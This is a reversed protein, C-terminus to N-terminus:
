SVAYYIFTGRIFASNNMNNSGSGFNLNDGGRKLVGTTTNEDVFGSIWNNTSNYECLGWAIGGMASKQNAATFPLNTIQATGSTADARLSFGAYVMRGIKIYEASITTWSGGPSWSGEEYEDLANAAATDTGFCLGDPTFKAIDSLSGTNAGIKFVIRQGSSGGTAACIETQGTNKILTDQSGTKLLHIALDNSDEIKLKQDPNNNGIGVNGDGSIRLRETDSGGTPKTFFVMPDNEKQSYFSAQGNAAIRITEGSVTDQLKLEAGALGALLLTGQNNATQYIELGWTGAVGSDGGIKLETGDFTLNAEATVTGDGDDTIVRNAGTTGVATIAAPPITEFTPDAGNNARLFKGDNSGDGHPLKALTVAQDAIKTTTVAGSAIKAESVTGDGPTPVTIASGIQIIFVSAGTPLNAGFVITNADVLAFGESPASTGTNAKQIVGNVSVILQAASTVAAAAGSNSSERLDYTAVSGNITPAGSGGAPCLFLFKFDGTSTVEKFANATSDFVKMKDANKDYILDGEDNNSTPEGNTVRYRNGFDNIDNSLNLIDSEKLTAKHFNYIQGSGTSSVMFSVGADVTTSNFASNINNITVTSGGVTRGTTSVGSGNVVLGGADAISIVVGAAPQTNPFAADTAIVELGGIPALQAAVYDVVAGSTPIHSDSDSITTQECGIKSISVADDALKDTTVNADTIKSTTVSNSALKADTVQAGGIHATDISGDVYHESDISDDAIKANTVADAALKATTVANNDLKATTIETNAIHQTRISGDVYHESDISDDAIKANTVADNALKATTVNADNIGATVVASPGIKDATVANTVIKNTTIQNDAINGTQVSNSALKDNTISSNAIKDTTVNANAIKDTTVNANAIKDTTVANTALKAGIVAGTAIKDAIVANSPIKPETVAGDAIKATTVNSDAIKATTINADAIDGTAITGDAIQTSTISGARELYNKTVADQANTPDAVNSLKQNSLTPIGTSADISVGQKLADDLEQDIFLSQKEATDLDAATLTSGDEFDVLPTSLSSIRRIEVRTNNSSLGTNLRIKKPSTNTIVQFENSGTGQAKEVFNVFVKIHEEKIYDFTFTFEQDGASNSTIIRQAYAM